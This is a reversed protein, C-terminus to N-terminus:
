VSKNKNIYKSKPRGAIREEVISLGYQNYYSNLVDLVKDENRERVAVLYM